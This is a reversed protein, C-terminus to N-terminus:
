ADRRVMRWAGIASWGCIWAVIVAIMAWTPMPPIGLSGRAGSLPGGVAGGSALVAPRLQDMAVGVILRQGDLIYPFAHAAMVPTVIIELVILLITSLTRQGTLSGLGLGVLFGIAVELELWLGVKVMESLGPNSPANGNFSFAAAEDSRYNRYFNAINRDISAQTQGHAPGFVQPHKELWSRLQSEDLHTPVPVGNVRVSTPQSTGSTGTFSTVLCLIAFAVAVLPLVISLGAPIRALYLAIRSRGTAVLHRFVGESLDTTAAGAGLAAAVIFGFEAMLDSLTVFGSPSGPPGYAKANILHLLLRFGLVLLPIGAILAAVVIMLGRRKRLELNKTAVLAWTPFWSAFRRQPTVPSAPFPRVPSPQEGSSTISSM